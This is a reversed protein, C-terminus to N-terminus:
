NVQTLSLLNGTPDKFWAIKAGSPSQWVGHDNQPMHDDREFVVSHAELHAIAAHIDDVEFGFVTGAPPAFRDMKQIRLTIPGARFVLAFPEDGLCELGLVDEYFARSKEANPTAIFAVPKDFTM